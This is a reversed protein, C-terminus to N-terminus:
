CSGMGTDSSSNSNNQQRLATTVYSMVRYLPQLENVPLSNIKNKDIAELGSRSDVYGLMWRSSQNEGCSYLPRTYLYVSVEMPFM